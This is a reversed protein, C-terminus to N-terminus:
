KKMEPNLMPARNQADYSIDGVGAQMSGEYCYNSFGDLADLFTIDSFDGPYSNSLGM